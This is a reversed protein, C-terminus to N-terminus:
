KNPIVSDYTKIKKIRLGGALTNANLSPDIGNSRIENLQKSYTNPEYTFESIRGTPYTIKNLIGTYLYTSNPERYNFYTTHYTSQNSIDAYTGNYFGWHDNKNALYDPLPKSNDYSFQYPKFEEYNRGEKVLSILTLRENADNNYIFSYTLIHENDSNIVSI